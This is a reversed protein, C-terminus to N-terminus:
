LEAAFTPFNTVFSQSSSLRQFIVRSISGPGGKRLDGGLRRAMGATSHGLVYRQENCVSLLAWETHLAATLASSITAVILETVVTQEPPTM